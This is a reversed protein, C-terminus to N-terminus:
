MIQHSRPGDQLLDRINENYIEYFSVFAQTRINPNKEIEEFIYDIAM